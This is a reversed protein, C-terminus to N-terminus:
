RDSRRSRYTPSTDAWVSWVTVTGDPARVSVDIADDETTLGDCGDADSRELWTQATCSPGLDGILRPGFIEQADAETEGFAEDESWVLYKAARKDIM